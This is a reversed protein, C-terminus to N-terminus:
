GSRESTSSVLDRNRAVLLAITTAAQSGVLLGLVPLARDLYGIEYEIVSNVLQAAIAIIAVGLGGWLVGLRFRLTEHAHIVLIPVTSLLAALLFHITFEAIVHPWWNQPFPLTASTGINAALAHPLPVIAIIPIVIGALILGLRSPGRSTM